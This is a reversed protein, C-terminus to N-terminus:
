QTNSPATNNDHGDPGPPMNGMGMAKLMAMPTSITNLVEEGIPNGNEDKMNKLKEQGHNMFNQVYGMTNRMDSVQIESKSKDAVAKLVNGVNAIGNVKLEEVINRVLKSCVNRTNPDGGAGLINVIQDTAVELDSEKLSDLKANLEEENVLNGVGLTNLVAELSLQEGTQLEITNAFMEEMGYKEGATGGLGLYPNFIKNDVMIGTKELSPGIEHIMDMVHQLSAVKRPNHHHFINFTSLAMLHFYQWFYTQDEESLLSYTLRINIGPLISVIKNQENRLEFLSSDSERVMRTADETKLVDFIKRLIKQFDFSGDQLSAVYRDVSDNFRSYAQLARPNPEAESGLEQIKSESYRRLLKLLAVCAATFQQMLVVDKNIQAHRAQMEQTDLDVVQAQENEVSDTRINENTNQSM